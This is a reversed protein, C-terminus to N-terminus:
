EPAGGIRFADADLHVPFKERCEALTAASLTVRHVGAAGGADLVVRGWPDIVLSDGANGPTRRAMGPGGSAM